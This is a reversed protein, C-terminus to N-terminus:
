ESSEVPLPRQRYIPEARRRDGETEFAQPEAEIVVVVKATSNDAGELRGGASRREVDNSGGSAAVVVVEEDSTGLQVELEAGVSVNWRVVSLGSPDERAKKRHM